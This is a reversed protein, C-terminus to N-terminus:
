ASTDPRSEEAKKKLHRKWLADLLLCAACCIVVASCFGIADIGVDRMKGTRGGIFSQHFEDLCAYLFSILLSGFFIIAIDARRRGILVFLSTLFAFCTAGLVTFWFIHAFNRVTFGGAIPVTSPTKDPPVEIDLIEVIVEGISNSTESSEEGGESSFSFIIAMVALMAAASFIFLTVRKAM